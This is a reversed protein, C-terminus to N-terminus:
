KENAVIELNIDSNAVITANVEIENKLAIAPGTVMVMATSVNPTLTVTEELTMDTEETETEETETEETEGTEETEETEETETANVEKEAHSNLVSVIAEYTEETWNTLRKKPM